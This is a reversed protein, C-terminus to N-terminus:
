LWFLTPLWESPGQAYVYCNLKNKYQSFSMISIIPIIGLFFNLFWMRLIGVVVSHFWPLKSVQVRLVWLRSMTELFRGSTYSQSKTASTSFRLVIIQDASSLPNLTSLNAWQIFTQCFYLSLVIPVLPIIASYYYYYTIDVATVFFREIYKYLSLFSLDLDWM